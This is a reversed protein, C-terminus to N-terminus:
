RKTRRRKAKGAKARRAKPPLVAVKATPRAVAAEASALMAEGSKLAYDTWISFPNVFLRLSKGSKPDM